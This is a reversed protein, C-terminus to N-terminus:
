NERAIKESRFEIERQSLNPLPSLPERGDEAIGGRGWGKEWLSFPFVLLFL